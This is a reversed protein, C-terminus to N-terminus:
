VRVGPDITATQRGFIVQRNEGSYFPKLFSIMKQCVKLKDDRSFLHIFAIASIYDMKGVFQSLASSEEFIDAAVLNDGLQDKDRFLEFGFDIFEQHLDAGFWRATPVGHHAFM